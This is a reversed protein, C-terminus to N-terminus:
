ANSSGNGVHIVGFVYVLLVHRFRNSVSREIFFVDLSTSAHHV